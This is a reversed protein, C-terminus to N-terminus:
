DYQKDYRYWHEARAADHWTEELEKDFRGDIVGKIEEETIPARLGQGLIDEPSKRLNQHFRWYLNDPHCRPGNYIYGGRRESDDYREKLKPRILTFREAVAASLRSALTRREQQEIEEMIVELCKEHFFAGGYGSMAGNIIGGCHECRKDM